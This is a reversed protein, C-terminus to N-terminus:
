GTTPLDVDLLGTAQLAARTHLLGVGERIAERLHELDEVQDIDFTEPVFGVSLGLGTAREVIEDLVTRTSMEVGRLVDHPGCMGVLYYGGDSVPGFVLDHRDLLDFAEVVTEVTLQPSDSVVLIVSDEGRDAAGAFLATQRETWDGEEQPLVHAGRADVGILPAIDEWADPPTVYWGVDFSAASFRAALDQLFARYLAVAREQGIARGLRTKALGVRPAKAAIYLVERM